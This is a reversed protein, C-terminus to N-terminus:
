GAQENGTSPPRGSEALLRILDAHDVPKIMHHDFGADKSQRRDEDQGWGTLAVMIMNRGWPQERIRRCADYGNLKPLGIDLLVVNPRFQEAADVAELGDHATHTTNGMIDLLMALSTASDRNDDVVLVRRGAIAPQEPTPEPVTIEPKEVLIPLRVMFESGRGPGDSRAEVSGGHMEVLRKVLTLGIGLGGQSRELASQVQSFMEFVDALKDPPIGIGTDKVTVVVDTGQREATLWIRGGPQTYKCANALLNGFIQTLRVSDAHLYIPEPPVSVILEHNAHDALPRAEEVAHHMVSALEVRGKRLDLRNRTIRSVDLLDDVLRVMQGLQREMTDRVLRLLEGDGSARKMMELMNSLPALPNRLEHALTALFEDKRRDGERLQDILRLREYAAAVYRSVTGLFDLEDATFEDKTRSAFSLTGLLRYDALLPHCSYARIGFSKVRQAMPEASQQIHTAHIPQRRLAATGAIAAGFELRAIARAAEEPIGACSELRLADGTDDVMYNFYSDVGLPMQIKRFLGQVMEDPDDAALVHQAAESLLELLGEARKRDTIDRAIKSLGVIRGAEDRIRSITLGVAVPQGDGRVRVTDFHTVREGARILKLMRDVEDARDAPIFRSISRGIAQEATCGYLREAAGNWSQVIGELSTSIIADESSEVISALFRAAAAREANERELRRRETIDRFVLVAGVIKGQSDKIPAGSDDIARETGDRSILLTHNALGVVVGEKMARLAPNDVPRRTHENVIRFVQQLPQGQAEEPKWGTLSHAIPNLFAVAGHADTAIVADGISALTVRLLEHQQHLAEEAQKRATIDRATKSAGIIRGAADVVPSVTLSVHITRNSKSTRLTEFHEMREGQRLRELILKEEEIREPPIIITIPRGIAEAASYEFLREAAANWSQIVGDLSKSIIADDSSEVIRALLARTQEARRRETIDRFILVSGTVRGEDDRIPAASDDIPRASGDKTILVTHNVLGVIVGERLARLAPNEVPTRTQEDVIRFVADLPQGVAEEPTWGSIAAAVGNTFTIRGETDTTIVADGISALTVRLLEREEGVARVRQRLQEHAATLRRRAAHMAESLAGIAVCAILYLALGLFYPGSMVAFSPGTSVSFGWALLLSLGTALLAPRLGGSTAAVLVALFFLFFISFPLQGGLLPALLWHVAAAAATALVAVIYGRM